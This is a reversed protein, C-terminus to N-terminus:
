RLVLELFSAGPVPNHRYPAIAKFGLAVYLRQAAGMSPLTDLVMREYGLLRAQVILAEALVRGLGTGRAQPAVYLRKMECVGAAFERLAGCAVFAGQQEALLFCGHPPGYHLPLSEIEQAFDQFGLDTGLSAAYEEVLRRATAWHEASTAHILRREGGRGGRDGAAREGM